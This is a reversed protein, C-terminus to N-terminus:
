QKRSVPFYRDSILYNGYSLGKKYIPKFQKLTASGSRPFLTSLGKLALRVFHYLVSLCNVSLKGVFQKLTNSCKTPNASLPKPLTIKM